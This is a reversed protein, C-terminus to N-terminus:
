HRDVFSGSPSAIGDTIEGIPAPNAGPAVDKPYIYVANGTSSSIYVLQKSSAAPSLWDGTRHASSDVSPAAGNWGNTQAIPAGACGAGLALTLASVIYLAKSFQM